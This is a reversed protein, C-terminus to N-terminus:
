SQGLFNGGPNPEQTHDLVVKADALDSPTLFGRQALGLRILVVAQQRPDRYELKALEVLGTATKEDLLIPIRSIM